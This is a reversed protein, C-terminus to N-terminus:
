SWLAAFGLSASRTLDSCGPSSSHMSWWPTRPAIVTVRPIGTRELEKVKARLNLLNRLSDPVELEFERGYIGIFDVEVSFWPEFDMAFNFFEDETGFRRRIETIRCLYVM